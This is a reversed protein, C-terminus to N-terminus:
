ASWKECSSKAYRRPPTTLISLYTQPVVTQGFWFTMVKPARGVEMNSRGEKREATQKTKFIIVDCWIDM